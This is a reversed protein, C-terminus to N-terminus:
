LKQEIKLHRFTKLVLLILVKTLLLVLGMIIWQLTVEPRREKDYKIPLSYNFFDVSSFGLHYDELLTIPCDDFLYNLYIIVVLIIAISYLTLFDNSFLAVVAILYMILAHIVSFMYGMIKNKTYM